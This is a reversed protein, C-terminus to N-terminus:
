RAGTAVVLRLGILDDRHDPTYEGRFASRPHTGNHYWSGGRMVFKEGSAPGQPDVADGAAYAGYRDSCWEWVNAYM